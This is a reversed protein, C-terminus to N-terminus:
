WCGTIFYIQGDNLKLRRAADIGGLLYKSLSLCASCRRFFLREIAHMYIQSDFEAETDEADEARRHIKQAEEVQSELETLLKYM